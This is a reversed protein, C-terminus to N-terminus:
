HIWSLLYKSTGIPSLPTVVAVARQAANNLQLNQTCTSLMQVNANKSKEAFLLQYLYGGFLSSPGHHANETPPCYNLDSPLSTKTKSSDIPLNTPSNAYHQRSHLNTTSVNIRAENFIQTDITKFQQLNNPGVSSSITQQQMYLSNTSNFACHSVNPGNNNPAGQLNANNVPLFLQCNTPINWMIIQCDPKGTPLTHNSNLQNEQARKTGKTAQIGSALIQESTTPQVKCTFYNGTATQGSYSPSATPPPLCLQYFNQSMGNGPTTGQGHLNQQQSNAQM